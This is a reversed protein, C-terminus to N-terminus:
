AAKASQEASQIAELRTLVYVAAEREDDSLAAIGGKKSALDTLGVSFIISGHSPGMYKPHDSRQGIWRDYAKTGFYEHDLGRTGNAKLGTTIEYVADNIVSQRDDGARAFTGMIQIVTRATNVKDIDILAGDLAVERRLAVIRKTFDDSKAKAAAEHERLQSQLSYIENMKATLM